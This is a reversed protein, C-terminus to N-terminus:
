IASHAGAMHVFLNGKRACKFSCYLCKFPKEGTHTLTHRTLDTGSIFAKGCQPWDCAYPKWYQPNDSHSRLHERTERVSDFYRKCIYCCFKKLVQFLVIPVIHSLFLCIQLHSPPPYKYIKFTLTDKGFGCTKTYAYLLLASRYVSSYSM